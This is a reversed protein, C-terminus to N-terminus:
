QDPTTLTSSRRHKSAVLALCRGAMRGDRGPGRDGHRAVRQVEHGSEKARGIHLIGTSSASGDVDWFLLVADFVSGQVVETVKNEDDFSQSVYVVIYLRALM